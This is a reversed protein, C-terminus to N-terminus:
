HQQKINIEKESYRSIPKVGRSKWWKDSRFDVPIDSREKYEGLNTEIQHEKEL